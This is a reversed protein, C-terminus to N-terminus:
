RKSMASINVDDIQFGVQKFQATRINPMVNSQRRHSAENTAGYRNEINAPIQQNDKTATVPSTNHLVDNVQNLINGYFTWGPSAEGQKPSTDYNDDNSTSDSLQTQKNSECNCNCGCTRKAVMKKAVPTNFNEESQAANSKYNQVNIELSTMVGVQKTHSDIQNGNGNGNCNDMIQNHSNFHNADIQHSSPTNATRMLIHQVQNQINILQEQQRMIINLMDRMTPECNTSNVTTTPLYNPVLHQQDIQHSQDMSPNRIHMRNLDNQSNPVAVTTQGNSQMDQLLRYIENLTIEKSTGSTHNYMQNSVQNIPQQMQNITQATPLRKYVDNFNQNCTEPLTVRKEPQQQAFANFDYQKSRGDSFNSQTQSNKRPECISLELQQCLPIASSQVPQSLVNQVSQTEIPLDFTVIKKRDIPQMQNPILKPFTDQQQKPPQPPTQQQQKWEKYSKAPEDKTLACQKSDDFILSVDPVIPKSM